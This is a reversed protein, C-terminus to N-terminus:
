YLIIFFTGLPTPDNYFGVNTYQVVLKRNPATGLTQYLGRQNLNNYATTDDWFPAIYNNPANSNAIDRNTYYPWDGWGAQYRFDEFTILGNSTAYFEDYTNGFFTFNFGIPLADTGDDDGNVGSDIGQYYVEPPLDAFTTSVTSFSYITILVLCVVFARRTHPIHKNITESFYRNM